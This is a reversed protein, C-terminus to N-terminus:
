AYGGPMILGGVQSTCGRWPWVLSSSSSPMRTSITPRVSSVDIRIMLDLYWQLYQNADERISVDVMIQCVKSKTPPFM